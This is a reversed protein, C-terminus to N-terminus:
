GQSPGGRTLRGGRHALQMHNGYTNPPRNGPMNADLILKEAFDVSTTLELLVERSRIYWMLYPADFGCGSATAEEFQDFVFIRPKDLRYCHGEFSYGYVVAMVLETSAMVTGGKQVELLLKKGEFPLVANTAAENLKIGYLVIQDPSYKDSKPPAPIDDALM